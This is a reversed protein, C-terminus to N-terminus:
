IDLTAYKASEEIFRRRSDVHEGMLLGFMRDAELLNTIEVKLLVRRTPDMTTEWLQEPNMEGLGKFRQKALNGDLRREKKFQALAKDDKLYYQHGRHSVRYLPPQAIFIRGDMILQPMQRFFFTLLLTRIHSGDVDSDTNHCLIGDGCFFRQTSPVEFDYVTDPCVQQELQECSRVPVLWVNAGYPFLCRKEQASECLYTRLNGAKWHAAWVSEIKLLDSGHIGVRYSEGTQVLKGRITSVSSPVTDIRAFVSCGGLLWLLQRAMFRSSTNFCIGNLGVSGDGLFLGKLFSLKVDKVWSFVCSPITKECATKWTGFLAELALRFAKCGFALRGCAETEEHFRYKIGHRVAFTRLADLYDHDGYGISSQLQGASRFGEALFWGFLFGFESDPEIFGPCYSGNGHRMTLHDDRGLMDLEHEGLECLPIWDKTRNRNSPHANSLQRDLTSPAEEYQLLVGLFQEWKALVHIPPCTRGCEFDAISCAQKYGLVQAVKFLSLGKSVRVTRLLQRAKVSLKARKATMNPRMEAIRGKWIEVVSPGRVILDQYRANHRQAWCLRFLNIRENTEPLNPLGVYMMDGEKVSTAEVLAPVGDRDVFVSHNGTVVVKRGYALSIGYMPMNKREHRVVSRVHSWIAAGNGDMTLTDFSGINGIDKFRVVSIEGDRRVITPEEGDVSMIIIKHYRLGATDFHRGIGTGMATVLTTLEENALLKKWECREVNLVKGRLPLIAQNRRNRGQKASNHVFIGASVAFRNTGPVELDYVDIRDPCKYIAVVNHNYKVVAEHTAGAIWKDYKDLECNHADSLTHVFFWRVTAPDFVMRYSAITTRDEVASLKSHFPMLSKGLSLQAEVFGGERLALKHEPTCVIELGNDLVLRIVEAKRKTIRPNIIPAISIHGADDISYCYQLKEVNEYEKTLDALTITRGDVLDIKTDGSLCGGASDGEVVFLECLAPDREQCDSLKGPLSFSDGMDTKRKTLERARKAAERAQSALVCRQIVAKAENPHEDLWTRFMDAFVTEVAMRADESVLKEKTQSSFRADPHRISVVYALGERVDDGSLTKKLTKPIDAEAIYTNLTRTLASRFGMLHTGGDINPINNTYCRWTEKDESTWMLVIDVVIFDRKSSFFIPEGVPTGSAIDRMLGCIGELGDFRMSNGTREDLLEITLGRCLHSLEKLRTSIRDYSFETVNHFITNDALFRVLTGTKKERSKKESIDGVRKGRECHIRHEKGDRWVTADLWTSLANVASVGVGHLGGAYKYADKDFKGGAHLVTLAVEFATKKETPMWHTPIGRGNDEVSASGDKHLTVVIKDCFGNMHEDISNDLVEMLTHHFGSGDDCGGIYM